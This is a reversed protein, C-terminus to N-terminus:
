CTLALLGAVCAAALSTGGGTTFMSPHVSSAGTLNEGSATFDLAHGKSTYPTTNGYMDHAGVCITHGSRAPYSIEKLEGHNGSATVM